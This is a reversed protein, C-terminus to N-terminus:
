AGGKIAAELKDAQECLYDRSEPDHSLKAAESRHNAIVERVAAIDIPPAAYLPISYVSTASATASARAGASKAKVDIVRGSGDAALWAVPEGMGALRTRKFEVLGRVLLEVANNDDNFEGLISRIRVALNNTQELTLSSM